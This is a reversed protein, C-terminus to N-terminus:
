LLCFHAICFLLFSADPSLGTFIFPDLSPQLSLFMVLLCSKQQGVAYAAASPARSSLLLATLTLDHYLFISKNRDTLVGLCKTICRYYVLPQCNGVPPCPKGCHMNCLKYTSTICSCLMAKMRRITINYIKIHIYTCMCQKIHTCVYTYVCM